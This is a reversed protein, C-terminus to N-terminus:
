LSILNELKANERRNKEQQVYLAHSLSSCVSSVESQDDTVQVELVPLVNPALGNQSPKTRGQFFKPKAKAEPKKLNVKPPAPQQQLNTPLPIGTDQGGSEEDALEDDNTDQGDGITDEGSNQSELNKNRDGSQLRNQKRCWYVGYVVAFVFLICSVLLLGVALLFTPDMVM